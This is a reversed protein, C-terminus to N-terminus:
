VLGFFRILCLRFLYYKRFSLLFVLIEVLYLSSAFLKFKTTFYFRRHLFSSTPFYINSTDAKFKLYHRLSVKARSPFLVSIFYPIGSIKLLKFPFVVLFSGETSLLSSPRTQLFTWSYFLTILALLM